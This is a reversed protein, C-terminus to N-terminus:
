PTWAYAHILLTFLNIVVATDFGKPLPPFHALLPWSYATLNCNCSTATTMMASMSTTAHILIYQHAVCVHMGQTEFADTANATFVKLWSSNCCNFGYSAAVADAIFDNEGYERNVWKALLGKLVRVCVRVSTREYESVRSESCKHHTDNTQDNANENMTLNTSFRWESIWGNGAASMRCCQQSTWEPCAVVMTVSAGGCQRCEMAILQNRFYKKTCEPVECVNNCENCHTHIHTHQNKSNVCVDVCVCVLM